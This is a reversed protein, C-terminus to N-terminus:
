SVGYYSKYWNVFRSVGVEIPMIPCYGVASEPECADAMTGEALRGGYVHELCADIHRHDRKLETV